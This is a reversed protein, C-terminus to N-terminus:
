SASSRLLIIKTKSMETENITPLTNIHLKSHLRVRAELTKLEDSTKEEAFRKARSVIHNLCIHGFRSDARSKKLKKIIFNIQKRILKERAVRIGNRENTVEKRLDSRAVDEFEIGEM